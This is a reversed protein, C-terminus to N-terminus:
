YRGHQKVIYNTLEAAQVALRTQGSHGSRVVSCMLAYLLRPHAEILSELKERTLVLVTAAQTARLSAYRVADDLFGLAHVFEGQGLTALLSEESSGLGKVVDLAGESIVYLRSDASGEPALVEGPVCQRLSLVGALVALQSEDLGASLRSKRAATLV